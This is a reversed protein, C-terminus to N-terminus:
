VSVASRSYGLSGFSTVKTCEEDLLWQILDTDHCCKAMIMPASRETNGWNGRVYSHSQHHHGVCEVHNISMIKGLAGSDVIEKAKGWLDTYRLVHCVVVKVGKKEAAETIEKAEKATPAMPKEILMDYGRRIIELAPEYHLKDQTTLIIFDAVNPVALLEKWDCFIM